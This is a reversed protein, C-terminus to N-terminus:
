RIWEIVRAQEGKCEGYYKRMVVFYQNVREAIEPIDKKYVPIGAKEIENALSRITNLTKVFSLGTRCSIFRLIVDGKMYRKVDRKRKYIFTRWQLHVPQEFRTPIVAYVVALPQGKKLVPLLPLYKKAERARREEIRKLISRRISFFRRRPKFGVTFRGRRRPV